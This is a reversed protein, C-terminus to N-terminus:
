TIKKRLTKKLKGPILTRVLSQVDNKGGTSEMNKAVSYIEDVIEDLTKNYTSLAKIDVLFPYDKKIDKKEIGHWIPLIIREGSSLQKQFLSKFEEITWQKKLYNKSMILIGYKSRTIAKGIEAVISDGIKLKLIDIWVKLGLKSLKSALEKAIKSDEHAYSIFIDYM